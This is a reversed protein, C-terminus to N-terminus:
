QKNYAVMFNENHLCSNYVVKKGNRVYSGSSCKNKYNGQNWELAFQSPTLGADLRKQIYKLTVYEENVLNFPIVEGAVQKSITEFRGPMYQYCGQEGSTGISKCGKLESGTEASKLAKAM